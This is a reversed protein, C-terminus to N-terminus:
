LFATDKGQQQQHAPPPLFKARVEPDARLDLEAYQDSRMREQEWGAVDLGLAHVIM